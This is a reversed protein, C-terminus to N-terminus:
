GLYGFLYGRTLRIGERTGSREACLNEWEDLQALIERVATITPVTELNAGFQADVLAVAAARELLRTKEAGDTTAAGQNILTKVAEQFRPRIDERLFAIRAAAVAAPHNTILTM